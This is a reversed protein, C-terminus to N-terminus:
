WSYSVVKGVKGLTAARVLGNKGWVPGNKKKLFLSVFDSVNDALHMTHKEPSCFAAPRPGLHISTPQCHARSWTESM